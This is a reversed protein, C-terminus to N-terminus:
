AARRRRGGVEVGTLRSALSRLQQRLASRPSMEALTRGNRMAETMAESDSPLMITPAQNTHSVVLEEIERRQNQGRPAHNIVIQMDATPALGQMEPLAHALRVLSLPDSGTVALVVDAAAMVAVAAQNRSPTGPEFWSLSDHELCFGVDVFTLGYLQQAAALTADIAAPRLADWGAPRALGTLVVLNSPLRMSARNLAAADLRGQGALRCAATLGSADTVVGLRHAVSPGYTDADILLADVGLRAAEDAVELAVTTRGPSGIPGWVAVVRGRKVEGSRVHRPTQLRVGGRLAPLLAEPDPAAVADAGLNVDREEGDSVVVVRVAHAHLESIVDRDLGPIRADVVAVDVQGAAAATRLEVLDVCRKVITAGADARSLRRLVGEDITANLLATAVRLTM